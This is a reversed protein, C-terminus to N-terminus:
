GEIKLIDFTASESFERGYHKEFKEKYGKKFRFNIQNKSLHYFHFAGSLLRVSSLKDSPLGIQPKRSDFNNLVLELLDEFKSIYEFVEDIEKDFDTKIVEFLAGNLRFMYKSYDIKTILSIFDHNQLFMLDNNLTPNALSSTDFTTPGSLLDRIIEKQNRTMENMILSSKEILQTVLEASKKDRENKKKNSQYFDIAISIIRVVFSAGSIFFLFCAIVISIGVWESQTDRPIFYIFPPTALFIILSTKWDMILEKVKDLLSSDM